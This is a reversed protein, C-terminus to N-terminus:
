DIIRWCMKQLAINLRRPMRRALNSRQSQECESQMADQMALQLSKHEQSDSTPIAAIIIESEPADAEGYKCVNDKFTHFRRFLAEAQPSLLFPFRESLIRVCDNAHGRANASIGGLSYFVTPRRHTRYTAGSDLATMIWKFDAAIRLSVDYPGALEYVSRPVYLANHCLDACRLYDGISVPRPTWLKNKGSSAVKWASFSHITSREAFKSLRSTVTQVARSTLWDDANLVCIYAGRCVQIGKNIAEYLGGDPESAYYDLENEYRKIIALTDDTSQGDIVIHEILPSRQRMVSRITREVTSGANRTVTLYSILPVPTLNRNIRRGGEQRPKSSAPLTPQWDPWLENSLKRTM